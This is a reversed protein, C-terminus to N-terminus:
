RWALDRATVPIRLVRPPTGDADYRELERTRVLLVGARTAFATWTERPSWAIETAAALAPPLDLDSGNARVIRGPELALYYRSPSAELRSAQPGFLVPNADLLRRGEYVALVQQPGLAELRGLFRLELLLAVRDRSLWEVDRVDLTVLALSAPTNPHRTAAELLEQRGLLVTECPPQGECVAAVRLLAEGRALTLATSWLAGPPPPRYAPACGRFAYWARGGPPIVVEVGSGRCVAYEGSGYWEADDSAHRKGDPSVAITCALPPGQPRQAPRLSPLALARVRCRPGSYVLRGRVGAERLTETLEPRPEAEHGGRVADVVAAIGVAVVAAVLLPTALRRM